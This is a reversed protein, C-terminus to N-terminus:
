DDTPIDNMGMLDNALDDGKTEKFLENKIQFFGTIYKPDDKSKEKYEQYLDILDIIYNRKKIDLVANQVDKNRLWGEATKKEVKEMFSYNKKFDEFDNTKCPTPLLDPAYKFVLYYAVRNNFKDSLETLISKSAM